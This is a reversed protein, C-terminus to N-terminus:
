GVDAKQQADARKIRAVRVLLDWSAGAGNGLLMAIVGVMWFFFMPSITIMCVGTLALWAYGIMPLWLRRRFLALSFHAHDTAKQGRLQRLTIVMSIAGFLILQFATERMTALPVLMMLSVILVTVFSFLIARALGLLHERRELVLTEVHLAIAVFLLAVLTAAATGAVIYFDHWGEM